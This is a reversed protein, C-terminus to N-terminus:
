VVFDRLNNLCMQVKNSPLLKESFLPAEGTHKCIRANINQVWKPPINSIRTASEEKLAQRIANQLDPKDFSYPSPPHAKHGLYSHKLELM